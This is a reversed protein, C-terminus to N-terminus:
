RDANTIGRAIAEAMQHCWAPDEMRDVDEPNSAFALEVLVSPRRTRRLEGYNEGACGWRSGTRRRYELRGKGWELRNEKAWDDRAFSDCTADYISQAMSRGVRSIRRKHQWYFVNFGYMKQRPFWNQHISLYCERQGGADPISTEWQCAGVPDHCWPRGPWDMCARIGRLAGEVSANYLWRPQTTEQGQILGPLQEPGVTTPTTDLQGTTPDLARLPLVCHGERVLAPILYDACYEAVYDDERNGPRQRIWHKLGDRGPSYDIKPGAPPTLGHGPRLIIRM